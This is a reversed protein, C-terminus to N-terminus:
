SDGGGLYLGMPNSPIIDALHALPGGVGYEAASPILFKLQLDTSAFDASGQQMNMGSSIAAKWFKFGVPRGTSREQQWIEVAMYATTAAGGIAVQHAVYVRVPGNASDYAHLLPTDADLSVVDTAVGQVRCMSVKDPQGDPYVVVLDGPDINAGTGASVKFTTAGAAVNGVLNTSVDVPEVAGVGNGLLLGFNRRSYERMTATASGAQETIATDVLVKPFGGMLDVSTQSIEITVGDLLGISDASTLKNARSLPGVRVESTGINFKKTRPLGFQSM